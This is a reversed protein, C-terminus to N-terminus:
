ASVKSKSILDKVVLILTIVGVIVAASTSIIQLNQYNSRISTQIQTLFDPSNNM